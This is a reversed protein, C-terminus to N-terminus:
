RVAEIPEAVAEPVSKRRVLHSEAFSEEPTFGRLRRDLYWFEERLIATVPVVTVLGIFGWVAGGIVLLLIVMAPHMDLAEGQIRPVLLNNELQQVMFYALAVWPLMSPNTAAILILGPIAGLWPGIIPILETVGAWVGLGLSLDVGLLAMLVGVALGVVVGLFIQARLYRGLLRDALTLMMRVDERVEAPAAGVVTRGLHRDRMAYFMFFPVVVFGFLFGLTSTVTAVTGQVARGLLAALMSTGQEALRGLRDQIEPPTRRQYEHLLGVTQERAADTIAPLQDIFHAVQEVAVPVLTVALASLAGFFVLYILLVVLGRRWSEHNPQKLPILWLLRDVLPALAYSILAGIAFPILAYLAQFAIVCVFASTGVWLALRARPAIM